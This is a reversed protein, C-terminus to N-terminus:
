WWSGLAACYEVADNGRVISEVKMRDEERMRNKWSDKQERPNRYVSYYSDGWGTRKAPGRGEPAGLGYLADVFRRTAEGVRLGFHGLLSEAQGYADDALQEYTMVIANASSRVLGVCTEVEYLWFLAHRSVVDTGNVVEPFRAALAPANRNLAEALRTHKMSIAGQTPANLGSLVTACPHRVVYVVPISTREVLNRLQRVFTVEKFVVTPGPQPSYAARYLARAPAALRAVPWLQRRGLTRLPYSKDAFFPAKNTLPHAPLLFSYMAPVDHDRVEQDKLKRMWEAAAPDGAALRHFPEFRYVVDPNSDVLAGM